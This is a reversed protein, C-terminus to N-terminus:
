GSIRTASSPAISRLGAVPFARTFRSRGIGSMFRDPQPLHSASASAQAQAVGCRLSTM